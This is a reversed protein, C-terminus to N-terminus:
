EMVLVIPAYKQDTTTIASYGIVIHTGSTAAMVAGSVATSPTVPRGVTIAGDSLVAALGRTQLFGFQSATTNFAAVGVPTGTLTTPAVIVSNFPNMTVDIHDSTTLGKVLPDELVFAVTGSTAAGHSKIKYSFGQGGGADRVTLIGGALFNASLTVTTSTTVTTTSTGAALVALNQQNTADQPLSQYVKGPVLATASGSAYRFYRGDGTTFSAGLDIGQSSVSAYIESPAIQPDSKLASM